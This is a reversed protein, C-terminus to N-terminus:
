LTLTDPDDSELKREYKIQFMIRRMYLRITPSAQFISFEAYQSNMVHSKRRQKNGIICDLHRYLSDDNKINWKISMMGHM